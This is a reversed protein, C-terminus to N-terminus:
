AAVSGVKVLWEWYDFLAMDGVPKIDRDWALTHLVVLDIDFRAEVVVVTPPIQNRHWDAFLYAAEISNEAMVFDSAEAQQAFRFRNFADCPLYSGYVARCFYAKM